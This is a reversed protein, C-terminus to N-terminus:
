AMMNVFLGMGSPVQCMIVDAIRKTGMLRLMMDFVFGHGMLRDSAQRMRKSNEMELGIQDKWAEEYSSLPTKEEFYRVAAEGALRGTIMATQIGGGNTPMVMGAADGVAMVRDTYTRALPGDVPLSDGILSAKQGGRLRQAAVKNKDIFGALLERIQWNRRVYPERIGIGVNARGHGKPIIWGYGGPSYRPDMYMEAVDQEVDLDTMLYEINTAVAYPGAYEREPLGAREATESPYGDAAIIIEGHDAQERTPGVWGGDEDPYFHAQVGVDIDAGNSRAIDGLHSEFVHRDLIYAAFPFEFEHGRPSVLRISKCKSDVSDDPADIIDICKVRPLLRVMEERVPFYEGCRVPKGLLKKKEFVKVKLGKKSLYVASSLGGPGGGVLIVDYKSGTL